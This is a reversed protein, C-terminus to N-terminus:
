GGCNEYDVKMAWRKCNGLYWFGVIDCYKLLLVLVEFVILADFLKVTASPRDLMRLQSDRSSGM